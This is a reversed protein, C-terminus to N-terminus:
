RTLYSICGVEEVCVSVSSCDKKSEGRYFTVTKKTVSERIQTLKVAEFLWISIEQKTKDNLNPIYLSNLVLEVKRDPDSM